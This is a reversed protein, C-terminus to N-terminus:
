RVLPASPDQSALRMYGYLTQERRVVFFKAKPGEKVEPLDLITALDAMSSTQWGHIGLLVDGVTIGDAAAAGGPRVETVYLGGKYKSAMRTNMRRIAAASLPRCRVGMVEWALDSSDLSAPKAAISMEYRTGDRLVQVDIPQGSPRDLMALALEFRDEIERNGVAVLRDGAVLGQVAAAGRARVSKVAIGPGRGSADLNWGVNIQRENRAEIMETMTAIVQDIPIAFAIQQAGVRVAVNIGIMEGRINLLPGGSNGPNIGASIQILDHYHQVENVPVDRHLASIIGRTATHVYGYANGIAIVDEGVLLDDSRGRPITPLPSTDRVRILALDNKMRAAVLDASMTRGDDLTVRIDAVDQVVHYNTIAYGRPDIIVGTGMGNVSRSADSPSAGAAVAAASDRVLKQGHINIVGPRALQVAKVVPTVRLPDDVRPPDEVRPANDTRSVLRDPSVAVATTAVTTTLCLVCGSLTAWGPFIKSRM